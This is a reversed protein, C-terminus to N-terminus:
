KKFAADIDTTVLLKRDTKSEFEAIATNLAHGLTKALTFSMFLVAVSQGSRQLVVNVDANSLAVAFGNAYLKPITANALAASAVDPTPEPM